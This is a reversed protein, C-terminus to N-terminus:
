LHDVKLFDTPLKGSFHKTIQTRTEEPITLKVTTSSRPTLGLM